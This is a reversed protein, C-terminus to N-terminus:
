VYESYQNQGSQNAMDFCQRADTAAADKRDADRSMADDSDHKEQHRSHLTSYTRTTRAVFSTLTRKDCAPVKVSRVGECLVDSFPVNVMLNTADGDIVQPPNTLILM